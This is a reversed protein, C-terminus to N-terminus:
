EFIVSTLSIERPHFMSNFRIIGKLLLQQAFKWVEPSKMDAYYLHHVRESDDLDYAIRTDYGIRDINEMVLGHCNVSGDTLSVKLLQPAGQSEENDKPASVNRMKTIQLVCPGQIQLLFAYHYLKSKKIPM